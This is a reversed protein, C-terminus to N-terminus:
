SAKSDLLDYSLIKGGPSTNEQEDQEGEVIEEEEEEDVVGEEEMGEELIYYISSELVTFSTKNWSSYRIAVKHVM